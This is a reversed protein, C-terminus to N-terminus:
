LVRRNGRDARVPVNGAMWDSMYGASQAYGAAADMSERVRGILAAHQLEAIKAEAAILRDLNTVQAKQADTLGDYADRAASVQAKDALTIQAPLAAIKATVADAAAKDATLEIIRAEAATLRDLNTVQAKQADTLADYATRAAEVRDAPGPLNGICEIIGPVPDYVTVAHWGSYSNDSAKVAIYAKGEAVGTVAGNAVSATAPANSKWTLTKDAPISHTLEMSQGIAVRDSPATLRADQGPFLVMASAAVGWSTTLSTFNTARLDLIALPVNTFCQSGISTVSGPVSLFTLSTCDRFFSGGLSGLRPSLTAARLATCGQFASSGITEINSIDATVLGTCNRFFNSGLTTVTDPLKIETLGTCGYFFYNPLSTIGAPLKVDGISQIDKCDRFM